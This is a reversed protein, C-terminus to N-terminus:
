GLPFAVFVLAGILVVQGIARPVLPTAAKGFREPHRAAYANAPFVAILFVILAVVTTILLWPVVDGLLLRDVFGVLLGIGGLVECVGTFRVLFRASFPGRMRQPIMAGMGRAVAPVFHLAGMILFAVALAATVVLQAIGVASM